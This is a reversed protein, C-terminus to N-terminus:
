TNKLEDIENELDCIKDDKENLEYKLDDYESELENALDDGIYERIITIIDQIDRIYEWNDNIRIIRAM